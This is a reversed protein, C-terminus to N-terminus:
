GVCSGSTIIVYVPEGPWPIELVNTTTTVDSTFIPFGDDISIVSWTSSLSDYVLRLNSISIHEYVPYGDVTTTYEFTFYAYGGEGDYLGVCITTPIPVATTTTPNCCEYAPIEMWKGVKPMKRRLILSGAVIRGSGDFRVYAKLPRKDITGM